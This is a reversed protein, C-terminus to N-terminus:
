SGTVKDLSVAALQFQGSHRLFEVYAAVQPAFTLMLMKKKSLLSLHSSHICTEWFHDVAPKCATRLMHKM